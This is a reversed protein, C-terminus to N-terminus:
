LGGAGRATEISLLFGEPDVTYGDPLGQDTPVDVFVQKNSLDGTVPHLAYAYTECAITDAFYLTRNDTSQGLRNM